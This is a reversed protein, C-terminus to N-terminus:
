FSIPLIYTSRVFRNNIKGPIWEPSSKLVKIVKTENELSSNKTVKFNSLTGDKEVVFLVSMEGKKSAKYNKAFYSYFKKMGDKPSAAIDLDNSSFVIDYKLPKETMVIVGTTFGKPLEEFSKVKKPEFQHGYCAPVAENEHQNKETDVIEIEDIKKKNGEKDQCSFLTTGMAIFLALLFMKHYHTQSYLVRSPIQITLTELQSNKFRGCIKENQHQSFYHQVEEPLRSTFDIVTKSCSLCFRGNENPTMKNWNEHCPEPITIKHTKDM